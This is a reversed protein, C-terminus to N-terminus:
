KCVSDISASYKRNNNRLIQALYCGNRIDNLNLYSIAVMEVTTYRVTLQDLYSGLILYNEIVESYNQQFFLMEILTEYDFVETSILEIAEKMM